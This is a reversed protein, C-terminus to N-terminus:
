SRDSSTFQQIAKSDCTITNHTVPFLTNSSSYFLLLSPLLRSLPLSVFPSGCSLALHTSLQKKVGKLVSRSLCGRWMLGVFHGAPLLQGIFSNWNFANVGVVESWDDRVRVTSLACLFACSDARLNFTISRATSSLLPAATYRHISPSVAAHVRHLFVRLAKLPFFLLRGLRSFTRFTFIWRRAFVTAVPILIWSKLPPGALQTLNMLHFTKDMLGHILRQRLSTLPVAPSAPQM